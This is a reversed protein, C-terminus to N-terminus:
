FHWRARSFSTSGARWFLFQSLKQSFDPPALWSPLAKGLQLGPWLVLLPACWGREEPVWSLM